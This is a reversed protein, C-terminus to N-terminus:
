ATAAEPLAGHRVVELVREREESTGGGSEVREEAIKGFDPGMAIFAFVCPRNGADKRVENIGVHHVPHWARLVNECEGVRTGEFREIADAALEAGFAFRKRLQEVFEGAEARLVEVFHAPQIQLGVIEFAAAQVRREAGDIERLKEGCPSRVVQRVQVLDGANHGSLIAFGDTGPAFEEAYQLAISV